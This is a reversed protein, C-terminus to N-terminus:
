GQTRSATWRLNSMLHTLPAYRVRSVERSDAFSWPIVVLERTAGLLQSRSPRAQDASFLSELTLLAGNNGLEVLLANQVRKGVNRFASRDTKM